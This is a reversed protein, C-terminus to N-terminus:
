RDVPDVGPRIRWLLVDGVREPEGLLGVAATQVAQRFLVRHDSGTIEDALFVAEVGWYAFDARARERDANTLRPVYGYLAARTFLWDTARPPAGIRGMLKKGEEGNVMPGLFYGDPMRFQPGGRAMTYAQWRQGDAHVNLAFPLATLVGNESVYRQWTGDAIFDPEPAREQHRVPLPFIPILSVVITAWLATRTNPASIRHDLLQDVVLALLIGFVGVVALAFRLPLASDFLPLRALAAYPLPLGLEEGMWNLRPGWSLVLFVLGTVAVARLTARRGPDARRWLLVLTVAMLVVLPLGFYSTEETRNPGLDSGLGFLAAFSRSPYSLYAAVDEVFYRQNFGTGTFTQPGAFHMYLPYSLLAGAVGAAVGLARVVTWFAAKAEDRVARALSWTGIFVGCAIAVYFLGEPAISFGVALALGLLLGNRLWRGPERLKLVRWLVFPAVWGASWNLHGNVHAIFGPAFGCFLGALAAAGANRVLWRGFFLYWAMASVALNLTLITVFTVPPGALHTLPAFLLTYVTISTNAALNVGVPANMLQTFFPDSGQSLTQVGYGLLWEFWAQDGVNDSLVNGYPDRWLGNTVYVALGLAIVAVTLHARWPRSRPPPAAPDSPPDASAAPAPAAVSM